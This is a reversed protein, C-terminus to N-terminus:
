HVIEETEKKSKTIEYKTGDKKHIWVSLGKEHAKNIMQELKPNNESLETFVFENVRKIRATKKVRNKEVKQELIILGDTFLNDLLQQVTSLTIKLSKALSYATHEQNKHVELYDYIKEMREERLKSWKEQMDPRNNTNMKHEGYMSLIYWSYIFM